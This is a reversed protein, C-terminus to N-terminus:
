RGHVETTEDDTEKMLRVGSMKPPTQPISTLRMPDFETFLGRDVSHCSKALLRGESIAGDM